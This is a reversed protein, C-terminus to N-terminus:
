ELFEVIVAAGGLLSQEIHLCGNYTDIIDAAVTLGIGHGPTFEDARGGRQLIHDLHEPKIGPGDDDIRLIVIGSKEQYGSLQIKGKSWKFSNDLLNGLIEIIDSEDCRLTLTPSLQNDVIIHKDGYVKNLSAIIREAVGYVALSQTTVLSGAAGARQLQREVIRMMRTSQEGVVAPLNDPQDQAGSLVTLPTKLSHALDALANRYRIQRNHEKALLTNINDTLKKIERPYPGNIQKQGGVDIANLEKSVIRLPALGWRLLLVQTILLLVGVGVLGGWLQYRYLYIQKHLPALENMLYFNYSYVGSKVTRQFGFGLLYYDKGDDMQVQTWRKEGVQLTFTQPIPRGYLSPSRWLLSNNDNRGIFAYSGSNPLALQPYPLNLPLPMTLKGHTDIDSVALLQYIQELMRERLSMETSKWFANDLVMGTATLFIILVM